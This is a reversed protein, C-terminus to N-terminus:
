TNCQRVSPFRYHSGDLGTCREQRPHDRYKEPRVAYGLDVGLLKLGFDGMKYKGIQVDM